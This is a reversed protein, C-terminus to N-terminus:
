KKRFLTKGGGLTNTGDVIKGFEEYGPATPKYPFVEVTGKGFPMPKNVVLDVTKVKFRSDSEYQWKAVFYHHSSDSGLYDYGLFTPSSNVIFLQNLNMKSGDAEAVNHSCGTLGVAILAVALLAKM